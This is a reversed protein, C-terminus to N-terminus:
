DTELLCHFEFVLILPDKSRENSWREFELHAQLFYRVLIEWAAADVVHFTHCIFQRRRKNTKNKVSM